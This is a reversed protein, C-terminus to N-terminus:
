WRGDNDQKQRGGAAVETRSSYSLCWLRVGAEALRSSRGEKHWSGSRGPYNIKAYNIIQIIIILM